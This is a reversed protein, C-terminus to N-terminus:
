FSEIAVPTPVPKTVTQDTVLPMLLLPPKVIRVAGVPPQPTSIMLSGLPFEWKLASEFPVAFSLIPREILRDSPPDVLKYPLADLM